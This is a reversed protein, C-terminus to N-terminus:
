HAAMIPRHDPGSERGGGLFSAIIPTVQGAQEVHPTHGSVAITEVQANAIGNAFDQAYAIPVLRDGEGWILLTEASIRRLRKALGRDPIPHIFHATSGISAFQAALADARMEPDSPVRLSAALDPRAPDLYRLQARADPMSVIHDAVPYDDNWLGMPDILVLKGVRHRFTAAYEAAVMGGFSHGILDFREVGLRDFLDDYYLLLDPFGDLSALDDMEVSGAHSPAYVARSAALHDLLAPWEQGFAGHLYVVPEGSGAIMVPNAAFPAPMDTRAIRMDRM